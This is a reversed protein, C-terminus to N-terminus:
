TGKHGRIDGKFEPNLTYYVGKGTRGTKIFVGRSVLNQLDRTATKKAADAIKQYEENTIKGKNRAYDIAKKQRENIESTGKEFKEKTSYIIVLVSYEDAKIEPMKPKLPHAKHEDLIKNWGEGLEEIYKVKALVKSIVPNRSHQKEAINEPTIGKYFGGPNYFEIRGDFMKITIKSGRESYDRHCVSNTILERLSFWPYEPIDEREVKQPLIRSMVAVHEKVYRDCGDIQSFLNGAFEKYDLREIGEQKGKYRALAIYSNPFFRQPDKGFLLIGANTPKGNKVCSLAELLNKDSGATKRETLSEYRPIFFERAFDGDIDDLGAGECIESDWYRKKKELIIRELEDPPIIPNESGIRKYAIGDLYHPKNGGEKIKVEIIKKGGIELVRIDPSVEPKIRQRIKQSISKLTSDSVDQGAIKKGDIGFFVAGGKNNLFGCVAKLAKELQATSKKFEATESEDNEILKKLESENM